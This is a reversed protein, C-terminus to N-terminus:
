ARRECEDLAAARAAAVAAAHAARVHRWYPDENLVGSESPQPQASALHPLAATLAAEAGALAELCIDYANQGCEMPDEVWRFGRRDVYAQAAAEVAREPIDTM